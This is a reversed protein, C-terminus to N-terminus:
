SSVERGGTGRFTRRHIECPGREALAERHSRTGYGCNKEFGYPPWLTHFVAMLRDRHVKALISAAAINASLGDGGVLARQAAALPLTYPGDVLVLDPVGVRAMVCRVAAAMACLSARLIDSADIGAASIEVVQWARAQARIEQALRARTPSSLRKSDDLGPLRYTQPLAVACAVVPGALPGRGVEDAGILCAFGRDLLPQEVFPAGTRGGDFLVGQPSARERGARPARTV